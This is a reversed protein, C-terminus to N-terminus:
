LIYEHTVILIILLMNDDKEDFTYNQIKLTEKENIEWVGRHIDM